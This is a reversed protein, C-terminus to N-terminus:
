GRQLWLKIDELSIKNEYIAKGVIVKPVGAKELWAIDAMSGVGGSATLILSPFAKMIKSYLDLAPGELMGDRSIDTVILESLAPVFKGVLDFIEIGSGETWGHTATELGRVDAGLIIKDPGYTELWSAFKEPEKVAITGCIIHGAGAELASEIDQRTKIGGGWEIDLSVERSINRLVDLNVPRGEKAGDLDVIHIRRVGCSSFRRAMELPSESYSTMRSFDGQVLRSCHGGVLDIAPIIQTM